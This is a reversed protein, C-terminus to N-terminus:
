AQMAEKTCGTGGERLLVRLSLLLGAAMELPLCYLQICSDGHGTSSIREGTFVCWLFM